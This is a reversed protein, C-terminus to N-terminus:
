AIRKRSGASAEQMKWAEVGGKLASVNTFGM